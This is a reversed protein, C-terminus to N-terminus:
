RGARGRASRAGELLLRREAAAVNARTRALADPNVSISDIGWRVLLEAYEPHVSPAQGCISCRLGLRRAKEVIARVADLVAGDREDYLQAVIESDRDVGLVLQTLDNTGISVGAIGMSAYSHLWYVVSPVEAMIWLEFRPDATLGSEDVLRKCGRLESATRVFPIMLHVNPLEARVEKLARLELAFLDPEKTYRFCGRYGIMPNDERAEITDGGELGRVENSRFDMARYIVPRPAFARAFIRLKEVLRSVVEDGKGERLLLRPHRHELASVLMFEARLLGVGDVALRSIEEAREPEGLNVYVRTGTVPPAAALSPMGRVPADASATPRAAGARVVGATADVTVMMGSALRTTGQATGVICPIGLERSVISAHSTMGGSDTVIAAARRMLPVWDPSTRPAVLIEGERLSAGDAPSVLVRVSGSATGPSAGLGRVLVGGEPPPPAAAAHELTTIPRTQVLMTRGDGIAFEIDQPSDYLTEIRKALDLLIALEGDTLVPLLARPDDDLDVRVTAGTAEDRQLLFEKRAIRRAIVRWSTKDLVYHDPTVLGGVVVEGLGWAAEIVVHRPEHLAPDATFIVGSKTAAIMRQVVVAVAMRAPLKRKARYFLIRPTFGSAWCDRVRALLAEEGRVNLFSEFMGAFSADATDEATGSSRAAVVPSPGTTVEGLREYAALLAARVDAPIEGARIQSRISESAAQLATTDDVDLAALADDVRDDLQNAVMFRAYAATTVVFGEPVPLGARTMEGLNAGKGGVSAIDARGIEAFWRVLPATPATPATPAALPPPSAQSAFGGALPPAPHLLTTM